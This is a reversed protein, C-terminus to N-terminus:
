AMSALGLVCFCGVEAFVSRSEVIGDDRMGSGLLGLACSVRLWLRLSSDDGSEWNLHLGCARMIELELSEAGLWRAIKFTCCRGRLVTWATLPPKSDSIRVYYNVLVKCDFSKYDSRALM